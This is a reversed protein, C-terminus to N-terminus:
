ADTALFPAYQNNKGLIAQTGKLSFNYGCLTFNGRFALAQILEASDLPSFSAFYEGGNEVLVALPRISDGKNFSIEQCSKDGKASALSWREGDNVKDAQWHIILGKYQSLYLNFNDPMGLLHDRDAVLAILPSQPTVQEEAIKAPTILEDPQNFANIISNIFVGIFILAVAAIIGLQLQRNSLFKLRILEGIDTQKNDTFSDNEPPNVYGTSYNENLNANFAAITNVEAINESTQQQQNGQTVALTPEIRRNNAQTTPESIYRSLDVPGYYGFIYADKPKKSKSPYTLLLATSLLPLVFLYYSSTSDIFLSLIGILLFLGGPVLQWNTTLRADHLRRKTSCVLVATLIFLIVISIILTDSFIASLIIFSLLTFLTTAFFRSRNDFGKLCFAAQLFPM